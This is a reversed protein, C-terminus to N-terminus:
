RKREPSQGDWDEMTKYLVWGPITWAFQQEEPLSASADMAKLARDIMDTRYYDVVEDVRHTYGIDFHTKCIVIIEKVDSKEKVQGWLAFPLM